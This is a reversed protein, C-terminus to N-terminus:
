EDKKAIFTEVGQSRIMAIKDKSAEEDTIVLDLKSLSHMGTFLEVGLKTHEMLAIVKRSNEFITRHFIAVEPTATSLGRASIGGATAFSLDLTFQRAFENALSDTINGSSKVKGGMLYTQINSFERLHYAIEVSNTVVTFPIHIPLYKLLVYHISAGGIFVTEDEKIHLAAAKAIANQENTGEGYRKAPAQPMTRVKPNPIAGGHTRKILGDEEMISLDRRISDISVNFEEALDKALVRGVKEVKELIKERREESFM